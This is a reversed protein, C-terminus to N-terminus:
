KRFLNINLEEFHARTITSSFDIDDHLADVEITTEVSLSLMRKARESATRLTPIL